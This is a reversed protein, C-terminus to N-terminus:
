GKRKARHRRAVRRSIREIFARLEDRNRFETYRGEAIDKMGLEAARDVRLVLDVEDIKDALILEGVPTSLLDMPRRGGMEPPTFPTGLWSEAKRMSRIVDAANALADALVFLRDTQHRGLRVPLCRHAKRRRGLVFELVDETALHRRNEVFFQLSQLPLGRELVEHLDIATRIRRELVRSGGLLRAVKRVDAM